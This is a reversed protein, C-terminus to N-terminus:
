SHRGEITEIVHIPIDDVGEKDDVSDRQAQIEQDYAELVKEELYDRFKGSIPHLFDMYLKRKGNHDLPIRDKSRREGCKECYGADLSNRAHCCPCRDSLKRSPLSVFEGRYGRVIKVEHLVLEQDFEVTASGLFKDSTNGKPPLLIRIHTIKM